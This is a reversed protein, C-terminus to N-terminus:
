FGNWSSRKKKRSFDIILNNAIKYLFARMNEVENKQSVYVWAKMFTEQMLEEAVQKRFVRFFCHRYIAEAHAEYQEIFEKQLIHKM